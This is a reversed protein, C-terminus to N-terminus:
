QDAWVIRFSARRTIAAHVSCRICTHPSTMLCKQLYAEPTDSFNAPAYLSVRNRHIFLTNMNRFHSSHSRDRPLSMSLFSLPSGPQPNTLCTIANRREKKHNISFVCEQIEKLQRDATSTASKAWISTSGSRCYSPWKLEIYLRCFIASHMPHSLIVDM